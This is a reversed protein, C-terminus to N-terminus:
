LIKFGSFSSHNPVVTCSSTVKIWARDNRNMHFTALSGGVQNGIVEVGNNIIASSCRNRDDTSTVSWHLAYYGDSPCTFVGTTNDYGGGVNIKVLPFKIGQNITMPPPTTWVSTRYDALFIVPNTVESLLFILM